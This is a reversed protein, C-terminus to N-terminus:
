HLVNRAQQVLQKMSEGAEDLATDVLAILASRREDPLADLASKDLPGEPWELGVARLHDGEITVPVRALIAGHIYDGDLGHYFGSFEVSGERKNGDDDIWAVKSRSRDAGWNSM